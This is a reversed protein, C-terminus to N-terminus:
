MVACRSGIGGTGSGAQAPDTMSKAIGQLKTYVKGVFAPCRPHHMVSLIVANLNRFAEQLPPSIMYRIRLLQWYLIVLLFNRTPTLLEFVLAVGITVDISAAVIPVRHYVKAWKSESSLTAFTPESIIIGCLPIVAKQNVTRILATNALGVVKLFSSLYAAVHVLEILLIPVMALTYTSSIWFVLCHCLSQTTPDMLIRQAYGLNFKPIGNSFVLYSVYNLVAVKYFNGYAIHSPIGVPLCYMIFNLLMFNRLLFQFTQFRAKADRFLFSRLSPVTSSPKAPSRTATRTSTSLNREVMQLGELLAPNNSDVKLGDQYTRYAEPYRGLQFLAAGKRSYGKPWDAKLAICKEADKLAQAGDNIKLYCASRNSFYVYLKGSTPCSGGSAEREYLAIAETFSTIADQYSGASFAKNGRDKAQECAM